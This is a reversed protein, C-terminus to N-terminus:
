KPTFLNLFPLFLTIRDVQVEKSFSSDIRLAMSKVGPVCCDKMQENKLVM